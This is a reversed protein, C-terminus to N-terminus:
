TFRPRFTVLMRSMGPPIYTRQASDFFSGPDTPWCILPDNPQPSTSKPQTHGVMDRTLDACPGSIWPDPSKPQTRSVGNLAGFFPGFSYEHPVFSNKLLASCNSFRGSALVPSPFALSTPPIQSTIDCVTSVLFVAPNYHEATVSRGVKHPRLTVIKTPHVIRGSIASLTVHVFRKQTTLNQPLLMQTTTMLPRLTPPRLTLAGFLRVYQETNIHVTHETKLTEKFCKKLQRRWNRVTAQM